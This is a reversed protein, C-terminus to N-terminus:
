EGRLAPACWTAGEGAYGNALLASYATRSQTWRHSVAGAHFTQYVPSMGMPCAGGARVRGVAFNSEVLPNAWEGALRQAVARDTTWFTGGFPSPYKVSYLRLLDAPLRDAPTMSFARFTYGTLVFGVEMWDWEVLWPSQRSPTLLFGVPGGLGPTFTGTWFYALDTVSNFAAVQVSATLTESVNAGSREVSSVDSADTIDVKITQLGRPLGPVMFRRDRDCTIADNLSRLPTRLHTLVVSLAGATYQVEGLLPFRADFCYTKGTTVLVEFPAYEVVSTPLFIAAQAHASPVCAAFLWLAFALRHTTQRLLKIM